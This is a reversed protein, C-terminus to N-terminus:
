QANQHAEDKFLPESADALMGTLGCLVFALAGTYLMADWGGVATVAGMLSPAIGAGLNGWMNAWGLVAGVQKGGTDQAFAWVAPVGVDQFVAMVALAATVAWASPLFPCILMALVCPLKFVGMPVARGYRRGYRRTLWDTLWGGGIMGFSAMFLPVTTMLGRREVPVSFREDLFRPLSTILFIWGINAFINTASFLWQNRSTALLRWPIADSATAEGATSQGSEILDVEARNCWPHNRPWDRAFLWFLVAVIVGGIGYIMLTPRWGRGHLEQVAGPFAKELILRNLRESEEPTRVSAPKALIARGEASLGIPASGPSDLAGPSRILRNLAEACREPNIDTAVLYAHVRTRIPVLHAPKADALLETFREVSLVQDPAVHAPTSIPVFAVILIGTLSNAGAGGFRGGFAVISSALGRSRDPVWRKLLLAATPYAGAQSLGLLFRALFLTWFDWAFAIFIGFVSWGVLYLTMMLRPGYRQSLWGSPVQALAYAIFFAGFAADMEMKGIRLDQRIYVEAVSVCVRELYLLAAALMALLVILDRVRTPRPSSTSTM